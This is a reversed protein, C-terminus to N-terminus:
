GDSGDEGEQLAELFADGYRELKVRGVGHVAMLEERTGPRREIM